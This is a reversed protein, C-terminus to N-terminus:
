RNEAVDTRALWPLGGTSDPCVTVALRPVTAAPPVAVNVMAPVTMVPAPGDTVSVAETVRSSISGVGALSEALTVV